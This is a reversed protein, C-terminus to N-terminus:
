GRAKALRFKFCSMIKHHIVLQKPKYKSVLTYVKLLNCAFPQTLRKYPMFFFINIKPQFGKECIRGMELSKKSQSIFEVSIPSDQEYYKNIIISTIM